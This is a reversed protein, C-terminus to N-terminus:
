NLRLDGTINTDGGITVNQTVNADQNVTLNDSTFTTIIGSPAEINGTTNIEVQGLAGGISAALLGGDAPAAIGDGVGLTSSNLQRIDIIDGEDNLDIAVNGTALARGILTTMDFVIPGFMEREGSRDLLAQDEADIGPSAYEVQIRIDAPNTNDVTALGGFAIAVLNAQALTPAQADVIITRGNPTVDVNLGFGTLGANAGIYGDTILEALNAPWCAAPYNTTPCAATLDGIGAEVSDLFHSKAAQSIENINSITATRLVAQQAREITPQALITAASLVAIGLMVQLLTFGRQRSQIAPSHLRPPVKPM